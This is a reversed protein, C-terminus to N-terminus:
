MLLPTMFSKGDAILCHVHDFRENYNGFRQQGTIDTKNYSKMVVSLWETIDTKRPANIELRFKAEKPISLTIRYVPKDKPTIIILLLEDAHPCGGASITGLKHEFPRAELDILAGDISYTHRKGMALPSRPNGSTDGMMRLFANDPFAERLTQYAGACANLADTARQSPETSKDNLLVQEAGEMRSHMDTMLILADDLVDVAAKANFTTHVVEVFEFLSDLCHSLSNWDSLEFRKEGVPTMLVSLPDGPGTKEMWERLSMSKVKVEVRLDETPFTIDIWEQCEYVEQEQQRALTDFSIKALRYVTACKESLEIVRESMTCTPTQVVIWVKQDLLFLIWQLEM